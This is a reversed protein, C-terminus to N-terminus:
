RIFQNIDKDTKTISIIETNNFISEIDEEINNSKIKFLFEYKNKEKINNYKKTKVKYNKDDSSITLYINNKDINEIKDITYTKIFVQDIKDIMYKNNTIPCQFNNFKFKWSVVEVDSYHHCYYVDFLVGKDVNNYNDLVYHKSIIPSKRFVKANITDIVVADIIFAIIFIIIFLIYKFIKKM